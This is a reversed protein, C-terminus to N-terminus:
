DVGNVLLDLVGSEPLLNDLVLDAGASELEPRDFYGTCVAVTYADVEVACRVDHPTDGIVFIQSPRWGPGNAATTRELAFGPLKNRDAADSGFGGDSFHHDLGVCQLKHFAVNRVNGTVLALHVHEVQALQEVLLAVGPLIEVDITPWSESWLAAYRNLVEGVIETAEGEPVGNKLAIDTAISPDTRGSFPVGDVSIPKGIVSKFARGLMKRGAGHTLLITGDIDFLVLREEPM